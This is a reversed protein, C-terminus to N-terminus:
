EHIKTKRMYITIRSSSIGPLFSPVCAVIIWPINAAFVYSMLGCRNGGAPWAGGEHGLPNLKESHRGTTRPVLSIRCRRFLKFFWLPLKILKTSHMVWTSLASDFVLSLEIRHFCSSRKKQFETGCILWLPHSLAVRNRPAMRCHGYTKVPGM